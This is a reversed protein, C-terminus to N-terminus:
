FATHLSLHQIQSVPVNQHILGNLLVKRRQFLHRVLNIHCLIVAAGDGGVLHVERKILLQHAVVALFIESLQELRIEKVQNNHVLTM